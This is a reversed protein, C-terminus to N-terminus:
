LTSCSTGYRNWEIIPLGDTCGDGFHIIFDVDPLDPFLYLAVLLQEIAATFPPSLPHNLVSHLSLCVPSHCMAKKLSGGPWLCVTFPFMLSWV